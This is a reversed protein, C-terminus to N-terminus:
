NNKECVFAKKLSVINCHFVDINSLNVCENYLRCARRIFMNRAYCTRSFPVAFLEKKRCKRQRARPVKINIQQLLSPIELKSNLIKYLLVSDVCDRRDQLSQIKHYQLSSHYDVYNQGTRFDLTKVFKKQLREIRNIHVAHFPKWVACAFELRSRVYSNYLTIYSFSNKFPKGVRLIFGLQKFSKTVVNEIHPIFSLKSDMIVGLDRIQTVRNLVKNSITYNHGINKKKRSFTIISCKKNNLFINNDTCYRELNSLDEQLLDCDSVDKIIKFIKADDAYLLVKSHKIYDTIDNIYLVFLLPGLHSGQPVGSTVVKYQSTYGSLVVAQTRFEVYSKIWRFLDGHIGLRWLKYLLTSHCIKDFAKAFDTYVVDVCHGSEMAELVEGTFILLNSDVSRGKFFGHQHPTIHNKVVEFLQCKVIKELIKSFQCLKSIPRYMEIEHSVKGKPIPTIWAQKWIKPVYGESLSKKFLYCIPKALSNSCKKIFLPHVGDPGSGKHVNVSNLHKLVLNITIDISNLDIPPNSLSNLSSSINPM